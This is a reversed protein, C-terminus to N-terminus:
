IRLERLYSLSPTNTHNASMKSCAMEYIGACSSCSVDWASLAWHTKQVSVSSASWTM